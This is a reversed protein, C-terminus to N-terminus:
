TGTHWTVTGDSSVSVLLTAFSYSSNNKYIKYTIVGSHESTSSAIDDYKITYTSTDYTTVDRSISKIKSDKGTYTYKVTVNVEAYTSGSPTKFTMKHSDSGSKTAAYVNSSPIILIAFLLITAVLVFFKKAKGMISNQSM